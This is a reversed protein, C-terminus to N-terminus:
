PGRGRLQKQPKAALKKSLEEKSEEKGWLRQRKGARNHQVAYVVGAIGSIPLAIALAAMVPMLLLVPLKILIAAVLLWAAGAPVAERLSGAYLWGLPGFVTSLLGSAIWSKEGHERPRALEDKAQQAMRAGTAVTMASEIGLPDDDDPEPEPEPSPARKRKEIAVPAPKVASAKAPAPRPSPGAAPEAARKQAERERLQAIVEAKRKAKANAEVDAKVEADLAALRALVERDDDSM